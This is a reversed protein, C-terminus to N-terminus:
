FGQLKRIVLSELLDNSFKFVVLNYRGSATMFDQLLQDIETASEKIVPSRARNWTRVGYTGSVTGHCLVMLQDQTMIGYM